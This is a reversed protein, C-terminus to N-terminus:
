RATNASSSTPALQVPLPWPACWWATLAFRRMNEPRGFGHAHNAGAAPSYHSAAPTDLFVNEASSFPDALDGPRRRPLPDPAHGSHPKFMQGAFHRRVDLLSWNVSQLPIVQESRLGLPLVPPPFLDAVKCVFGPLAAEARIDDDESLLFPKGPNPFVTITRLDPEVVWILPFGAARYEQVKRSMTM